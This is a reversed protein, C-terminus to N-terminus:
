SDGPEDGAEKVTAGCNGCRLGGSVDELGGVSGCRPCRMPGPDDFEGNQIQKVMAHYAAEAGEPDAEYCDPCICVPGTMAGPINCAAVPSPGGVMTQCVACFAFPVCEDDEHNIEAQAVAFVQKVGLLQQLWSIICREDIPTECDVIHTQLKAIQKEIADIEDLINM